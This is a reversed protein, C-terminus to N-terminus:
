NCDHQWQLAIGLIDNPLDIVGDPGYRNWANTWPPVGIVEGRDYAPDYPMQPNASYRQIVGFIDNPLDVRRDGNTDFFDGPNQFDRMGGEMEDPGSEKADMCGDKDTDEECNIAISDLQPIVNTVTDPEVFLTGFTGAVPDGYPLMEITVDTPTEPCSMHLEVVTGEFKSPPLPPILATLGGHNALGTDPQSRVATSPEVDPWVVEENIDGKTYILEGFDIFTQMLVYDNAPAHVVDILLTFDGGAPVMCTKPTEGECSAGKVSLSMEADPAPTPTPPAACDIDLPSVKPVVQTESDPEVFLAGFTGAVPDLYPLLDVTTETPVGPCTMQLELINGEFKSPPLPPILGTLAGHAVFGPGDQLRLATTQDADPWVLEEAVPRKTYALDAGYDIYTQALIYDNAPAHVVEVALVFPSGVAVTCTQAQKPGVCKGDKVTLAMEPEAPPPTPTPPKTPTPTPGELCEITISDVKSVVQTGDPEFFAAGFVGAVPDNLPLLDVATQLPTGPCSMQLEVVPGTYTSVPYPPLIASLAGTTVLGPGQPASVASKADGDPWVVEEAAPRKIYTLDDGYDVFTQMGIYGAAPGQVADVVLTFDKGGPVTCTQGQCDGGKVSLAMGPGGADAAASGADWGGAIAFVILALPLALACLALAILKPKRRLATLHTAM